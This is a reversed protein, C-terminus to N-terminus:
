FSMNMLLIYFYLLIAGSIALRLLAGAGIGYVYKRNGKMEYWIVIPVIYIFQFLGFLLASFISWEDLLITTKFFAYWILGLIYIALNLMLISIFGMAFQETKHIKSM